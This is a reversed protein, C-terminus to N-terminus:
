IKYYKNQLGVAKVVRDFEKRAVALVAKGAEEDINDCFTNLFKHLFEQTENFIISILKPELGLKKIESIVRKSEADIDNRPNLRLLVEYNNPLSVVLTNLSRDMINQVAKQIYKQRNQASMSVLNLSDDLIRTVMTIYTLDSYNNM